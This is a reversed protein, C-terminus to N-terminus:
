RLVSSCVSYHILLSFHMSSIYVAALKTVAYVLVFLCVDIYDSLFMIMILCVSVCVSVIACMLEM